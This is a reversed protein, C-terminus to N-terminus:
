LSDPAVNQMSIVKKPSFKFHTYDMAAGPLLPLLTWDAYMRPLSMPLAVSLGLPIRAVFLGVPIRVFYLLATFHALVRSATLM